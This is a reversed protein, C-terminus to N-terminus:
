DRTFFDQLLLSEAQEHARLREILRRTPASLEAWGSDEASIASLAAATELMATHEARLDAIGPLLSPREAAVAGFYGEAEETAFHRELTVSLATLLQLPHAAERTNLAISASACRSEAGWAVLRHTSRVAARLLRAPITSGISVASKRAGATCRFFM